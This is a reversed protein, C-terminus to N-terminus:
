KISVKNSGSSNISLATFNSYWDNGETDGNHEISILRYEGNADISNAGASGSNFLTQEIKVSAGIKLMPNLLCKGKVGDENIEPIGILGTAPTLLVATGPLLGTRKLIIIKGDQISWSSEENKSVQRLYEQPRGYFVRGRPYATGTTSDQYSIPIGMAASLEQAQTASTSGAALTKNVVTYNYAEDGDGCSVKIYTDTGDKGNEFGKINGTFILGYNQTYGANVIVKTFSKKMQAITQSSANYLVFEAENPSQADKKSINFVCRLQSLDLGNGSSDGAIFNWKRNYQYVYDSM